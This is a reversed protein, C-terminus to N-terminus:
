SEYECINTLLALIICLIGRSVFDFAKTLETFVQDLFVWQEICKKLAQSASFIMDAARRDSRFRGQFSPLVSTGFCNILFVRSLVNGIADLLTIELYNDRIEKGIERQVFVFLMMLGFIQLRDMRASQSSISKQMSLM